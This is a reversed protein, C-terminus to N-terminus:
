ATGTEATRDPAVSVLEPGELTVEYGCYTFTVRDPGRGDRAGFLENLAETNVVDYLPPLPEADPDDDPLVSRGSAAAVAEVVAQTATEDPGRRYRVAGGGTREQQETSEVSM